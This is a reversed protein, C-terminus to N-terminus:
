MASHTVGYRDCDYFATYTERGKTIRSPCKVDQLKDHKSAILTVASKRAARRRSPRLLV